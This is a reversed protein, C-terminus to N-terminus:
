AVRWANTPKTSLCNWTDYCTNDIITTIHGDIRVLFIGYPNKDAFEGVTMNECNKPVGGLVEQILFAYCTPCLKECDLLKATHYLKKRVTSYLLNCALSIARTVCDSEKNKDPNVNLYVFKAM